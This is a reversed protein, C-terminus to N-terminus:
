AAGSGADTPELARLRAVDDLVHRHCDWTEDVLQDIDRFDANQGKQELRQALMLLENAGLNGASGKLAHAAAALAPADRADVAQRVATTLEQTKQTFLDLFHGYGEELLEKLSNMADPDVALTILPDTGPDTDLASTVAAAAPAEELWRELCRSLQELKLPKAIYDDMGAAICRERDGQMANATLAVIVPRPWAPSPSEQTQERRRLERSAEFGDMVPMQCDMLILDYPNREAADLAQEGDKAVEASLGLRALMSLAVRQNTANDEVLLLRGRFRRHLKAKTEQRAGPIVGRQERGGGAHMLQALTDQLHSQRIPKSLSFQVGAASLESASPGGSSVMLLQTDALNPDAKILRALSLGDLQPMQMDLIAVGFPHGADVAQRLRRLADFGDSTTECSLGWSRLYHSLINLNTRHDDVALVSVGALGEAIDLQPDVAQQRDFPLNIWFTSGQGLVSDAGIEGGMLEVLQKSIALGLGTGGFRRTTSGDAQVFPQFLRGLQAETMGIGTDSIEFRLVCPDAVAPSEPADASGQRVRLVVEGQETFKVANGMLNTLIQRLRTPDGIVRTNLDVPIYCALEVRSCPNRSAFLTAVDEALSRVDFPVRELDLKGAEIKSFDLIDNIVRLLADASSLATEVYEQQDRDLGTQSLMELMGLVGNMPTRIEHSMNALFRSKAEVAELAALRAREAAIRAHDDAMAVGIMGALLSLLGIELSELNPERGVGLWAGGVLTGTQVIPLLIGNLAPSYTASAEELQRASFVELSLLPPEGRRLKVEAQGQNGSALILVEGNLQLASLNKLADLANGLRQELRGAGQLCEAVQARVETLAVERARRDEEAVERSIDRQVAVFGLLSGDGGPLPSITTEAWYSLREGDPGRRRNLLRGSWVEGSLITSWLDEYRQRPTKGASLVKTPAGTAQEVTLGTIRTFAPNVYQIVGNLDTVYIADASAEVAKALRLRASEAELLRTVDRLILACGTVKGAQVIPYILLSVPLISDDAARLSAQEDRYSRGARARELVQDASPAAKLNGIASFSFRTLIAEGLWNKSDGLLREAAPNMSVLRADLDLSCFGDRFGNIIAELKDREAAVQSDSARRLDDYLTQMERSSIELSRELLYRDQQQQAYSRSVSELFAQWAALDTPLQDSDLKARRLQRQILKDM